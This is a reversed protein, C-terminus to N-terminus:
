FRLSLCSLGGDLKRFESVDLVITQYGAQKIKKLTRPFGAPVLVASNIWLSNAAYAEDPDVEIKQFGAFAPHDNFEGTVLLKNQELYSIGSKLHLMDNLPVTSGSMGYRELIRILQDAGERNTRKSLGIYFLKGVMMVDGADLTGPATISEMREYFAQLVPEMEQKEGNRSPAGPNTVIACGPTCLAVDEVFTSDPFRSDAKLVKVELGCSQLADVYSAHQDLAKKYDPKGLSASSLGEIMEPCPIRVIANKFM